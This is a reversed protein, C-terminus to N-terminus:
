LWVFTYTYIFVFTVLTIIAMVKIHFIFLNESEEDDAAEYAEREADTMADAHREGVHLTHLHETAFPRGCYPCREAAEDDVRYDDPTVPESM